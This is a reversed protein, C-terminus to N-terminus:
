PWTTICGLEIVLTLALNYYMGARDGSNPVRAVVGREVLYPTFGGVLPGIIVTILGNIVMYLSYAAAFQDLRCHEAITLSLNVVMAGKLFGVVASMVAIAVFGHVCAFISRAIASTLCGVLYTMRSGLGIRTAFWPLVLRSVVDAGAAISMCLATDQGTFGLEESQLFFPFVTFFNTDSLFSVSLGLVINVYVLDGLLSLDLFDSVARIWRRLRHGGTIDPPGPSPTEEERLDDRQTPQHLLSKQQEVNVIPRPAQRKRRGIVSGIDESEPSSPEPINMTNDFMLVNSAFNALFVSSPRNTASIQRNFDPPSEIIPTTPDYNRSSSDDGEEELPLLLLNARCDLMASMVYSGRRSIVVHEDCETDHCSIWEPGGYDVTNTTGDPDQTRFQNSYGNHPHTESKNALDDEEEPVVDISLRTDEVLSVSGNTPRLSIEVMESEKDVIKPAKRVLHYRVPQYLVAGVVGNLAIGSLILMTGRYGYDELLYQVLPPAVIFGLGIGAQCLGMALGRRELFYSNFALYSSPAVMGLGIGSIISYTIVIHTMSQAFITLMVGLTFLLAGIVSVMRFSMSRLLHNTVLGTFNVSAALANMILTAGTTQEGLRSLVDDFLLGFSGYQGTTSIFILAMGFAVMWGWGGEPPQLPQEWDQVQGNHGEYQTPSRTRTVGNGSHTNGGM